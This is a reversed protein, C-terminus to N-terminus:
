LFTGGSGLEHFLTIKLGVNEVSHSGTKFCSPFFHASTDMSVWAGVSTFLSQVSHSIYSDMACWLNGADHSMQVYFFSVMGLTLLQLLLGPPFSTPRIAKSPQRYGFLWLFKVWPYKLAIFYCECLSKCVDNLFVENIFTGPQCLGVHTLSPNICTIGTWKSCESPILIGTLSRTFWDEQPYAM